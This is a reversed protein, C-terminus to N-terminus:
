KKRKFNFYIFAATTIITCIIGVQIGLVGWTEVNLGWVATGSASVLPPALTTQPTM